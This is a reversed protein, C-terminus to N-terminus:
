GPPEDSRAPPRTWRRPWDNFDGIEVGDVLLTYLVEDPFDNIRIQWRQGDVEATWPHFVDGSASWTVERAHREALTAAAQAQAPDKKRKVRDLTDWAPPRHHGWAVVHDLAERDSAGRRKAEVWLRRLSPGYGHPASTSRADFGNHVNQLAMELIERVQPDWEPMATEAADLARQRAVLAAQAAVDTPQGYSGDITQRRRSYRAMWAALLATAYLYPGEDPDPQWHAGRLDSELMRRYQDFLIQNSVLTPGTSVRRRRPEGLLAATTVRRRLATISPRDFRGVAAVGEILLLQKRLEKRVGAQKWLRPQTEPALFWTPAVADFGSFLAETAPWENDSGECCKLADVVM